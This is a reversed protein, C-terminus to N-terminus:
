AILSTDRGAILLLLRHKLSWLLRAVPRAMENEKQL